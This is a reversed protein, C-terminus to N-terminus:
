DVATTAAVQATSPELLGMLRLRETDFAGKRTPAIPKGDGTQFFGRPNVPRNNLWIEYHLHPATALGSAGVYGITQGQEIRAGVRINSAYRSLHAYRTTTRSNHRVEVLNGYGGRRGAYIVTGEGVSRIPAGYAASFDIGNHARNYRLIPHFRRRSFGSSIRRYELPARLLERRMSMGRDDYFAQRGNEDDFRFAYRPRAGVDIRAALVQRFRTEGEASIEREFLVRFRDGPQIDRSFDLSWDYVEALSWVLMSRAELSLVENGIASQVADSVSTTVSGEIVLPEARWAITEVTPEWTGTAPEKNLHLRTDYSARVVIAHPEPEGHRQAFNFVTGARVRSPQFNRVAASVASWDVDDVGRRLMLQSLTQGYRLTDAYRLIPASEVVVEPATKLDEGGALASPGGAREFAVGIGTLLALAAAFRTLENRTIIM